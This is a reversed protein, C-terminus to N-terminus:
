PQQPEWLKGEPKCKGKIWRVTECYSCPKGDVPSLVDPHGCKADRQTREGGFPFAVHKCDICLKM